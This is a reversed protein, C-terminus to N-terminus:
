QWYSDLDPDYEGNVFYDPKTKSSNRPPTKLPPKKFTEQEVLLADVMLPNGESDSVTMGKTQEILKNVIAKLEDLNVGLRNALFMALDERQKENGEKGMTTTAAIAMMLGEERPLAELCHSITKKLAQMESRSLGTNQGYNPEIQKRRKSEGM